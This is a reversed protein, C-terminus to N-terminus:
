MHTDSLTQYLLTVYWGKVAHFSEENTLDFMLIFGMAGRYYATTITRYREQGATDWIQLKIRKDQRLSCVGFSLPLSLSLSLSLTSFLIPLSLFPFSLRLCSFSHSIHILWLGTNLPCGTLGGSVGCLSRWPIYICM